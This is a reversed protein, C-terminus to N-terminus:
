WAGMQRLALPLLSVLNFLFHVTIPGVLSQTRHRLWGLLMALMFLPIRTPGPHLLAFLVSTAVIGCWLATGDPWRRRTTYVLGFYGPGLGILYVVSCPDSFGGPEMLSGIARWLIVALVCLVILDSALPVGALSPQILGRLVIEEAVPAAVLTVAAILLWVDWGPVTKLLKEVDHPERQAFQSVLWFTALIVPMTALWCLFGLVLNRRGDVWTLGLQSPPARHAFWLLTLTLAVAFGNQVVVVVLQWTIEEPESQTEKHVLLGALIAQVIFSLLVVLGADVLKWSVAQDRRPPLLLWRPRLTLWLVVIPGLGAAAIISWSLFLPLSGIDSGTNGDM